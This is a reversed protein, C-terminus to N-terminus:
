LVLVLDAEKLRKKSAKFPIKEGVKREEMGPFKQEEAAAAAAAEVDVDAEDVGVLFFIFDWEGDRIDTTGSLTKRFRIKKAIGTKYRKWAGGM